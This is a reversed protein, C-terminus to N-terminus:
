PHRPARNRSAQQVPAGPGLVIARLRPSALAKQQLNDLLRRHGAANPHVDGARLQFENLDAAGAFTDLLNLTPVELEELLEIADGFGPAASHSEEVQPVLLVLLDARQRQAHAQLSEIVWRLVRLRHPALKANFTVMDDSPQLRAERALQRLFDYRLDIGDHVLQALHDGWRRMVSLDTFALAYVDPAFAAARELAVDLMQTIRYGGVAFNLIEFQQATAAGYEQNLHHELLAEFREGPAVGFGRAISDGILAIRRTNPPRQLPYEEDAMGSSNTILRDGAFTLDLNPKFDYRLFGALRRHAATANGGRPWAGGDAAANTLHHGAASGVNLLDQYYGATRRADDDANLGRRSLTAILVSVWAPQRHPLISALLPLTLLVTLVLLSSTASRWFRISM